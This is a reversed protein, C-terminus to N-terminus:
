FVEQWSLISLTDNTYGAQVQLQRLFNGTKGQSTILLPNSGTVTITATGGNLTFVEGTYSPNRLLRVLANEAGSEAISFAKNGQDVTSAALSNTLLVVVSASTITVAVIMFFLLSVLSQGHQAILIKM